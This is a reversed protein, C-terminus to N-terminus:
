VAKTNRTIRGEKLIWASTDVVSFLVTQSLPESDALKISTLTMQASPASMLYCTSAEKSTTLPFNRKTICM